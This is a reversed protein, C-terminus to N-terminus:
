AAMTAIRPGPDTWGPVADRGKRDFRLVPNNRVYAYTNVGARLGVPDSELYRGVVPDYDRFYNYHIRSESDYYQGPFRLNFVFTGLGSPNQNAGAAGFPDSEWSWVVDATSRRTIRRPTNLHDTHIYFISLGCAEIRV